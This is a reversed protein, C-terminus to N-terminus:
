PKVCRTYAAGSTKNLHRVAGSLFDIAWVETTTGDSVDTSTWFFGGSTTSAPTGFIPDSFWSEASSIGFDLITILEHRKPLRWAGLCVAMAGAYDMLSAAPFQWTLGSIGDLIEGSTPETYGRGNGLFHGDQSSYDAPSVFGSCAVRTNAANYCDVMDDGLGTDPLSFDAFACTM